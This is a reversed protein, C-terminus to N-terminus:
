ILANKKSVLLLLTSMTRSLLQKGDRAPCVAVRLHGEHGSNVGKTASKELAWLRPIMILPLGTLPALHIMEERRPSWLFFHSFSYKEITVNGNVGLSGLGKLGEQRAGYSRSFVRNGEKDIPLVYSRIPHMQCCGKRETGWTVMPEVTLFFGVLAQRGRAQISGGAPVEDVAILTHTQCFVFTLWKEHSRPALHGRWM